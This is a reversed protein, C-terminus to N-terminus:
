DLNLMDWIAPGRKNKPLMARGRQDLDPPLNIAEQSPMEDQATVDRTSAPLSKPKKIPNYSTSAQAPVSALKQTPAPKPLPKPPAAYPARFGISRSRVKNFTRVRKTPNKPTSPPDFNAIAQLANGYVLQALKEWEAQSIFEHLRM